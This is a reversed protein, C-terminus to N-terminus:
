KIRLDPKTSFVRISLFVSPLFLFPHCILRNSAMVSEISIFKISGWSVTTSLPAQHAVAWLTVFLRVCSLSHIVVDDNSMQRREERDIQKSQSLWPSNTASLHGKVESGNM